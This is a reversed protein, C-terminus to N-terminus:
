DNPKVTTARKDPRADSARPFSTNSAVPLRHDSKTYARTLEAGFFLIQSSYYTWVLLVVLSGAAGYVSGIASSGIYIGILFKGISFLVSPRIM